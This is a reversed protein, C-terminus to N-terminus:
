IKYTRGFWHNSVMDGENAKFVKYTTIDFSRKTMKRM